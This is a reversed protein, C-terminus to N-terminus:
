PKLSFRLYVPQHDSYEFKNYLSKIELVNINPSCVFFDLITCPTEGPMYPGSVDRNTPYDPDYVVQWGEEPGSVPELANHRFPKDGSLYSLGPWDAPNLNWDGGAIVYHGFKYAHRMEKYLM